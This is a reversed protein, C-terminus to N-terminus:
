IVAVSSMYVDNHSCEVDLGFESFIFIGVLTFQFLKSTLVGSRLIFSVPMKTKLNCMSAANGM